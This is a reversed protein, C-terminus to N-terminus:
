TIKDGLDIHLVSLILTSTVVGNVGRRRSAYIVISQAVNLDCLVDSRNSSLGM